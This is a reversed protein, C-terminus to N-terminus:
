SKHLAKLRNRLPTIKAKNDPQYRVLYRLEAVTQRHVAIQRRTLM